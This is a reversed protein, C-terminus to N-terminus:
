VINMRQDTYFIALYNNGFTQISSDMMINSTKFMDTLDKFMILDKFM